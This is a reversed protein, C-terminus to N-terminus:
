IYDIMTLHTDDYETTVRVIEGDEYEITRTKWEEDQSINQEVMMVAEGDQLTIDVMDGDDYITTQHVLNGEADYTAATQQWEFHDHEDLITQTTSTDPALTELSIASLTNTEAWETVYNSVGSLASVGTSGEAFTISSWQGEASQYVAGFNDVTSAQADKSWATGILFDHRWNSTIDGIFETSAVERGDISMSLADDEFGIVIDRTEGDLINIDAAKINIRSGDEAYVTFVLEGNPKAWATFSGYKSFLVGGPDYPDATLTFSFAFTDSNVLGSIEQHSVGASVGTEELLISPSGADPLLAQVAEAYGTPQGGGISTDAIILDAITAVVTSYSDDLTDSSATEPLTDDGTDMSFETITGTFNDKNWPNGFHLDRGAGALPDDMGVSNNLEGDVFIKFEEDSYELRFDHNSIDSISVDVTGLRVTGGETFLTVTLGGTSSVNVIITEHIRFVEGASSADDAQLSIDIGFSDAGIIDSVHGQWITAAVGTQDLHLGADSVQDYERISGPAKTTFLM